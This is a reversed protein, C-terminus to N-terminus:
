RAAAIETTGAAKSTLRQTETRAKALVEARCERVAIKGSLDADSATGCVEYAARAFRRDLEARGAKSSLDLDATHVIAVSQVSEALAPAAKIVAATALASGLAILFGKKM